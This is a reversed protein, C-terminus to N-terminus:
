YGFFFPFEHMTSDEEQSPFIVRRIVGKICHEVRDPLDNHTTWVRSVEGDATLTFRVVIKGAITADKMLGMEYCSTFTRMRLNVIESVDRNQNIQEEEGPSDKREVPRERVADDPEIVIEMDADRTVRFPYAAIVELGPFLLDLNAIVVEELWVFNTAKPEQLGLRHYSDAREESPVRLLVPRKM